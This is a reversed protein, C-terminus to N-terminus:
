IRDDKGYIEEEILRAKYNLSIEIQINYNNIKKYDTITSAILKIYHKLLYIFLYIFLVKRFYFLSQM